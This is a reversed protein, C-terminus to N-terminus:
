IFNTAALVGRARPGGTSLSTVSTETDRTVLDDERSVPCAASHSKPDDKYGYWVTYLIDIKRNMIIVYSMDLSQATSVPAEASFFTTVILWFHNGVVFHCLLSRM